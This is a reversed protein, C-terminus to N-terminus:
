KQKFTLVSKEVFNEIYEEGVGVGVRINEVRNGSKVGDGLKM